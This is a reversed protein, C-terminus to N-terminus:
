CLRRFASSLVWAGVLPFRHTNPPLAGFPFPKLNLGFFLSPYYISRTGFAELLPNVAMINTELRGAAHEGEVLKGNVVARRLKTWNGAATNDTGTAIGLLHRVFLKATETKGAGSEGSIICCQSRQSGVLARHAMLATGFVHPYPEPRGGAGEAIFYQQVTPTYITDLPRFPNCAILIDGVRTYIVDSRYREALTSVMKSESLENLAALNDSSRVVMGYEKIAAIAKSHEAAATAANAAIEAEKVKADAAAKERAEAEAEAEANAAAAAAAAGSEDGEPIVADGSGASGHLSSKWEPERTAVEPFLRDLLVMMESRGAELEFPAFLAHKLAEEASPRNHIDKILVHKIFDHLEATWAANKSWEKLQPAPKLPIQTMAKMAPIKTHPPKGEAMEIVTIGISWIDCRVDYYSGCQYDCAVVEPAM